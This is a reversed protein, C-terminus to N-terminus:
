SLVPLCLDQAGKPSPTVEPANEAILEDAISAFKVKKWALQQFIEESAWPQNQFNTLEQACDWRFYVPACIRAIEPTDYTRNIGGMSLPAIAFVDMPLRTGQRTSALMPLALDDAPNVSTAGLEECLACSVANSPSFSASMKLAVDTPFEGRERLKKILYLLSDDFLLFGRIGAEYLRFIDVLLLKLEDSGRAVQGCIKGESTTIQRGAHWGPKPGPVAIVEIKEERALQAYEKIEAPTYSARGGQFFANVRHITVNRQRAEEVVKELVRVHEIGSLEHRYWGGDPFRLGSTPLNYRDGGPFGAKEMLDAVDQIRM